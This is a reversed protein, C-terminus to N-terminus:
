RGVGPDGLPRAGGGVPEDDEPDFEVFQRDEEEDPEVMEREPEPEGM